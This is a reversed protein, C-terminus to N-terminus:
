DEALITHLALMVTASALLMVVLMTTMSLSAISPDIVFRSPTLSQAWANLTNWKASLLMAWCAAVLVYAVSQVISMPRTARDVTRTQQLLQAKLWVISPNPLIHERDDIAAFSHMWAGANMAAACEDCTAVHARLSDSWSDEEIARLVDSEFRCGSTM